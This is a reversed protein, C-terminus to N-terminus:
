LRVRLLWTIALAVAGLYFYHLLQLSAAMVLPSLVAQAAPFLYKTVSLNGGARCCSPFLAVAAAISGGESLKLPLYRSLRLLTAVCSSPKNTCHHHTAKRPNTLEIKYEMRFIEKVGSGM